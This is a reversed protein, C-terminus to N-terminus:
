PSSTSNEWFVTCSRLRVALFLISKPFYCCCWLGFCLTCHVYCIMFTSLWPLCTFVHLSFALFLAPNSNDQSFFYPLLCPPRHNSLTTLCFFEHCPVDRESTVSSNWSVWLSDVGSPELLSAERPDAPNKRGWSSSLQAIFCHTSELMIKLDTEHFVEQLISLLFYETTWYM